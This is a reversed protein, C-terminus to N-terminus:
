SQKSKMFCNINIYILEPNPGISKVTDITWKSCDLWWSRGSSSKNDTVDEHEVPAKSSMQNGANLVFSPLCLQKLQWQIAEHAIGWYNSELVQDMWIASCTARLMTLVSVPLILSPKYELMEVTSCLKFTVGLLRAVHQPLTLLECFLLMSNVKAALRTWTWISNNNM